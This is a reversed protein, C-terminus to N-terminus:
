GIHRVRGRPWPKRFRPRTRRPLSTRPLALIGGFVAALGSRRERGEATPSQAFGGSGSLQWATPSANTTSGDQEFSGNVILNKPETQDRFRRYAGSLLDGYVRAVDTM